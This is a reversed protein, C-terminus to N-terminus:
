HAEMPLKLCDLKIKQELLVVRQLELLISEGLSVPISACNQVIFPNNKRFSHNHIAQAILEKGTGTEGYIM